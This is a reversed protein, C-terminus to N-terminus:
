GKIYGAEKLVKEGADTAQDLGEKAPLDGTIVKALYPYMDDRLRAFEPVTPDVMRGTDIGAWSAVMGEVEAAGYKRKLLEPKYKELNTQFHKTYSSDYNGNTLVEQVTTETSALWALHLYAAEKNKSDSLVSAAWGGIRPTAGPTATYGIKGAIQSKEPNEMDAIAIPWSLPHIAVQGTQFKAWAAVINDGLVEKSMLDEKYMKAWIEYTEVVRPDRFISLRKDQDLIPKDGPLINLTENYIGAARWGHVTGYLGPKVLKKSWDYIQQWTTNKGDPIPLGAEAFLDKRYLMIQAAVSVPIGILKGDRRVFDVIRKPYEEIDWAPLKPDNYLPTLDELLGAKNYQAIFDWIMVVADYEGSRSLVSTQLKTPIQEEPLSDYVVNMGTLKNFEPLVAEHSKGWPGASMLITVKKGKYPEAAAAWDPRGGAEKAPASTQAPAQAPAAAAPKQEAPKQDAAPAASQCAQMLPTAVIASGFVTVFRLLQRRSLRVPALTSM